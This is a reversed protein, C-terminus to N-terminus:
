EEDGNCGYQCTDEHHDPYVEDPGHECHSCCSFYLRTSV